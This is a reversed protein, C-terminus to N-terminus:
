ETYSGSNAVNANNFAPTIADMYKGVQAIEDKILRREVGAVLKSYKVGSKNKDAELSFRTVVDCYRLGAAALTSVFYKRMMKLSTPPASVLYPLISDPTLLLMVRSQKCAQGDADGGKASGFQSYPCRSCDGGPDGRGTVMDESQCDPPTGGTEEYDKAWYSRTDRFAIIIGSVEKVSDTDGELTNVEFAIGGGSPISLKDLDFMSIKQGGLNAQIAQMANEAEGSLAVFNGAPEKKQVAKKSGM